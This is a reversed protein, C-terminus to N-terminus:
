EVSIGSLYVPNLPAGDSSGDQTGADAIAQVAELGSTIKGFITYGGAADSPIMSDQYVIFFQSGM